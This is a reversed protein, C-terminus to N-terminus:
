VINNNNNYQTTHMHTQKENEYVIIYFLYTSSANYISM